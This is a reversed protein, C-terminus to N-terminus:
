SNALFFAASFDICSQESSFYVPSLLPFSGEAFSMEDLTYAPPICLQILFILELVEWVYFVTYQLHCLPDCLTEGVLAQLIMHAQCITALSIINLFTSAIAM